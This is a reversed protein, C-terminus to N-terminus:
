LRACERGPVMPLVMEHYTTRFGLRSFLERASTNADAAMLRLQNVGGEMSWQRVFEVLKTAVGQRRFDAAVAVDHIFAYRDYAYIPIEQQMGAAVGGVVRSGNLAVAFLWDSKDLNGTIWRHYRDSIDARLQWRLPWYAEHQREVLLFLEVLSAVHVLEAKQILVDM